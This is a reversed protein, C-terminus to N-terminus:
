LHEMQNSQGSRLAAQTHPKAVATAVKRLITAFGQAYQRPDTLPTKAVHSLGGATLEHAFAKGEESPIVQTRDMKLEVLRDALQASKAEQEVCETRAEGLTTGFRAIEKGLNRVLTSAVEEPPGARANQASDPAEERSVTPSVTTRSPAAELDSSPVQH